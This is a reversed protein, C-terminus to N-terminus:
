TSRIPPDAVTRLDVTAPYVRRPRLREGTTSPATRALRACCSSRDLHRFRDNGARVAMGGDNAADTLAIAATSHIDGVAWRVQLAFLLRRARTAASVVAADWASRWRTMRDPAEAEAEFLFRDLMICSHVLTRATLSGDRVIGLTRGPVGHVAGM